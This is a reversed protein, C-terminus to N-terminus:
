TADPTLKLALAHFLIQPICNSKSLIDVIIRLNNMEVGHIAGIPPIIM